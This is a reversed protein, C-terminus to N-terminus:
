QTVQYGQDQYFKMLEEPSYGQYQPDSLLAQIHASTVTKTSPAAASPAVASPAAAAQPPAANVPPTAMNGRAMLRRVVEMAQPDVAPGGLAQDVPIMGGAPQAGMFTQAQAIREQPTLDHPITPSLFQAAADTSPNAIHGVRPTLRLADELTFQNPARAAGNRAKAQDGFFQLVDADSLRGERGTDLAEGAQNHRINENLTSQALAQTAADAARRQEIQRRQIPAQVLASVLDSFGQQVGGPTVAAAALNDFNPM